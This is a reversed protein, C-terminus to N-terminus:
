EHTNTETALWELYAPLGQVIPLAIIEPLTYPHLARVIEEVRPYADTTTKIALPIEVAEEVVGQWRYISRAPALVNVCAAARAEILAQAIQDACAADPVNTLVFLPNM